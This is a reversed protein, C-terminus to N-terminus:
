DELTEEILEKLIPEDKLLHNESKHLIKALAKGESHLGRARLGLALYAIAITRLNRMKNHKTLLSMGGFVLQVHEVGESEAAFQALPDILEMGEIYPNQDNQGLKRSELYQDFMKLIERASYRQKWALAANEQILVAPNPSEISM